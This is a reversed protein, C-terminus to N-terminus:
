ESVLDDDADVAEDMRLQAPTLTPCCGDVLSVPYVGVRERTGAIVFHAPSMVYEGTPLQDIIVQVRHFFNRSLPVNGSVEWKYPGLVLSGDQPSQFFPHPNTPGYFAKFMRPDLKGSALVYMYGQITHHDVTPQVPAVAPANYDPEVGAESRSFLKRRGDGDRNPDKNVPDLALDLNRPGLDSVTDTVTVQPKQRYLDSQAQRLQMELLHETEALEDLAKAAAKQAQAKAEREAEIRQLAQEDSRRQQEAKEHALAEQARQERIKQQRQEFELRQDQIRKEEAARRALIENEQQQRKLDETALLESQMRAIQQRKEEIEALIQEKTKTNTDQTM